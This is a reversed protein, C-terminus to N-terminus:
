RVQQGGDITRCRLEGPLNRELGASAYHVGFRRSQSLVESKRTLCCLFGLMVWFLTFRLGPQILSFLFTPVLGLILIPRARRCILFLAATFLGAGIIGYCFFLTGYSSHLESNILESRFRSYAGEGAGFFLYEPHYWIRDYGRMAWTEDADQFQLRRVLNRMLEPGQDELLFSALVVVAAGAIGILLSSPRQFLVLVLLFCLAVLAAKSLGLLILYIVAAYLFAQYWGGIRFRKSGFFFITAALIGYYGLQNPNNFFLSNRFTSKDPAVPSLIVQLFVSVAVAHLTLRLFEDKFRAYLVLCLVLLLFNYAYFLSSYMISPNETLATWVANVCFTYSVFVAFAAVVPVHEPLIRFGITGFVTVMLGLMVYDAIQPVGGEYKITIEGSDIVAQSPKAGPPPPVPNKGMLYFPTLVLFLAWVTLCFQDTASRAMMHKQAAEEGVM